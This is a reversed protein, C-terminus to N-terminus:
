NNKQRRQDIVYQADLTMMSDVTIRRSWANKVVADYWEKNFHIAEKMEQLERKKANPNCYVEHSLGVFGNGFHHITSESHLLIIIDAKLIRKYYDCSEVSMHLNFSEPFVANNYYWFESNNFTAGPWTYNYPQWWFSDSIVLINLSKNKTSDNKIVVSPYGMPFSKPEKFLNVGNLIDRDSLRLSDSVTVSEIVVDPLDTKFYAEAYRVISDYALACGYESWHIGYKPYLPYKSKSKQSIFYNNFDIHNLNQQKAVAAYEKYNTKVTRDPLKHPIYEPYFSAKGPAFVVLLLKKRAAMSDQVQKLLKINRNVVEEGVFNEGLYATIYSREFLYGEKGVVVDRAHVKNFVDFDFQNYLRTLFDHLQYNQQTYDNKESQFNGNFWAEWSFEPDKVPTYAGGIPNVPTKFNVLELVVPTFLVCMVLFLTVRAFNKNVLQKEM